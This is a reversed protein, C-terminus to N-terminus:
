AARTPCTEAMLIVRNHLSYHVINNSIHNDDGAIDEEDQLQYNEDETGDQEQQRGPTCCHYREGRGRGRGRGPLGHGRGQGHETYEEHEQLFWMGLDQPNVGGQKHPNVYNVLM